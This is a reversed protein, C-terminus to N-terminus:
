QNTKFTALTNGIGESLTSLPHHNVTGGYTLSLKIFLYKSKGELFAKRGEETQCFLSYVQSSM